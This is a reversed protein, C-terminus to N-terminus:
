TLHMNKSRILRNNFIIARLCYQAIVTIVPVNNIAKYKMRMAYILHYTDLYLLCGKAYGSWVAAHSLSYPMPSVAVSVMLEIV